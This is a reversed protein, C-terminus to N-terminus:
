LSTPGDFHVDGSEEEVHLTVGPPVRGPPYLAWRKRGVLLANWACTLAPDVHWSAGSRAPGAVLWRFPPRRPGMVEFLDEAFHPPVEYDALLGPALEGFKEDFIYLPEEDRQAHLYAAYDRLRMRVKMAAEGHDAALREWTWHERARWRDTLDTLIVPKNGDYQELFEHPSLGTRRDIVGDDAAFSDLAVHCRYWRRYLYM